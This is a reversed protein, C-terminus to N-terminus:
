GIERHAGAGRHDLVFLPKEGSEDIHVRLAHVQTAIDAGCLTCNCLIDM